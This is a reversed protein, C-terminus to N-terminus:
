IRRKFIFLLGILTILTLIIIDFITIGSLIVCIKPIFIFGAIFISALACVLVAGASLDKANKIFINYDLGDKNCVNEISTNIIEVSLVQAFCLFIICLELGSLKALKSFCLIYAIAVLHIRFNRENQVCFKLGCFAFAFSKILKKFEQMM